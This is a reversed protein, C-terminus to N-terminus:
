TLSKGAKVNWCPMALMGAPVVAFGANSRTQRKGGEQAPTTSNTSASSEFDLTGKSRTPELGVEPVLKKRRYYRPHSNPPQKPPARRRWGPEPRSSSRDRRCGHRRFRWVGWFMWWVGLGSGDWFFVRLESSRPPHSLRGAIRKATYPFPTPPQTAPTHPARLWPNRLGRFELGRPCPHGHPRGAFWGGIGKGEPAFSILPSEGAAGGKSVWGVPWSGFGRVDKDPPCTHIRINGRRTL